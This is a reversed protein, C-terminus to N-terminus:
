FTISAGFGDAVGTILGPGVRSLPHQKLRAWLFEFRDGTQSKKMSEKGRAM